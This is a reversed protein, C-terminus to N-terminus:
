SSKLNVITIGSGGREVHEDQMSTIFSSSRFYNRLADRLIGYGKGHLIKLESHGLLLAEDIFREVKVIAEEARQGRVDITNSFEAQKQAVDYNSSSRKIGGKDQVKGVKVLQSLQVYTRITDTGVLAKKGKIEIVEATSSGDSLKVYDGVEIKGKKAVPTKEKSVKLEKEVYKELEQRKAKTVEKAAKAEKITRITEEVKKNSDKVIQQAEYKASKLIRKKEADLFERLDTYEKISTELKQQKTEIDDNITRFKEKEHELQQVLGEFKVQSYGTFKKASKIIRGPLGIKGAIELAFSSGPKGVDLVYKPELNQLDFRMAGNEIGKKKDAVKKLNAYHTTIVGFTKLEILENLIAEAIAGGFQPDTGTGFEDILVLTKKDAGRVFHNMNTLHSSYTSLDNEISQEDGIDIFINKFVGFSSGEEVPVLLGCQFMYQLLGVTKLCVSKGGANPGSILLIRKDFDLTIDLPIIRHGEASLKMELLPHRAKSWEIKTNKTVEPLVAATEMAFRAKAKSFDVIALFIYAKLLDDIFPRIYDTLQTLIKIIERREEYELERIQNNIDLVAGPEIYSTQGTASEDHIFGKVQRKFEALVPIVMRGDRITLGADEPCYGKSQSDKLIRNLLGRAKIQGNAIENRIEILRPSADDRLQGKQDIVLEIASLLTRDVTVRKSAKYMEPCREENEEFYSTCLFLTTLSRKIEYFGELEVFTGPTRALKLHHSVDLYHTDPFLDGSELIQKLEATQQLKYQIRDVLSEPRVKDVFSAGLKGSCKEKLLVRIKDFGIKQEFNNPYLQM